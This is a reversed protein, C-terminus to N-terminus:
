KKIDEVIKANGETLANLKRFVSEKLGAPIVLRASLSGDGLWQQSQLAGLEKIIGFARGSYKAPVNIQLTAEEMSIPILSKLAKLVEDIQQEAPKFPDIIVRAKELLSIIRDPPHPVRTQPNIAYRSIFNAIQKKKEEIKRRRLETTLQVEGHKVMIEAIKEVDQTGFAKEIESPSARMGKKSDSFITNVALMRSLSVIKGDKLEYALEPDVLIEFHKGDKEYKAIIAEDVTVM